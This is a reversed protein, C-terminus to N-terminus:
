SLSVGQWALDFIMRMMNHINQDEIIVGIPHEKQFNIVSIKNSGYVTIESQYTFKEAPVFQLQPWYKKKVHKYVTENYDLDKETDPFIGRSTIGIQEKKKVYERLFGKPLFNMLKSVNSYGVMEYPEKQEVHDEYVQVIGAIDEFFRIRPRHSSLASLAELDPLFRQAFDYRDEAIRIGNKVYRLLKSPKEIQYYLKKGREIETVLGQIALDQLVKYVTSRNLTSIEAIRSPYAGGVHLLVAYVIASKNSLGLKKLQLIISYDIQM